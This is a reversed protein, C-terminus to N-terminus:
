KSQEPESGPPKARARRHSPHEPKQDLLWAPLANGPRRANAADKGSVKPLARRWKAADERTVITRSGVKRATLRGATIEKYAQSRSIGNKAAFREVSDAGDHEDHPPVASARPAKM